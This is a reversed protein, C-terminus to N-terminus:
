GLRWQEGTYAIALNTITAGTSNTFSAGIIPRLSVSQLGGFARDTNTGTGFSYTNGANNSGTGAAYTTNASTGAEAFDWGAPVASATGANALTDFNQTYPMGATALNISGAARAPAATSSLGAFLLAFVALWGFCRRWRVTSRIM